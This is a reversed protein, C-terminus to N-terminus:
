DLDAHLPQPWAERHHRHLGARRHAPQPAHSLRSAPPLILISKADPAAGHPQVLPGPLNSFAAATQRADPESCYPLPGLIGSPTRETVVVDEGALGFGAELASLCTTSKGSGNPGVLLLGKNSDPASILAGHLAPLGLRALAAVLAWQFPRVLSIRQLEEASPLSLVIMGDAPRFWELPDDYTLAVGVRLPSERKQSAGPACRSIPRAEM